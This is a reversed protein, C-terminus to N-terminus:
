KKNKGKKDVTKNKTPEKMLKDEREENELKEQKKPEIEEKKDVLKAQKVEIMRKGLIDNVEYEKDKLFFQQEVAPNNPMAWRCDEIVKILM